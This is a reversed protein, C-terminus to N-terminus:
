GKLAGYLRSNIQKKDAEFRVALERASMGPSESLASVIKNDLETSM